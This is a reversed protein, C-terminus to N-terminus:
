NKVIKKVEALQNESYFRFFYIGSKLDSIDLRSNDEMNNVAGLERGSIDSYTCRMQVPVQDQFTFNLLGETPNPYVSLAISATHKNIGVPVDTMWTEKLRMSGEGVGCSYYFKDGAACGMGGKRGVAPIDPGQLWANTADNFYWLDKYFSGLTDTGGFLCLRNNATTLPAYTRGKGTFDSIKVWSDTALTYKYLEKRFAGGTDRGFVLFGSGNLVTAGSRFRGPFPYNNKQIWSDTSITYEWVEASSKGSQFKGGCIIVKDGFNMCAAGLLGSGPKSAVSIWTGALVDFKYMDTLAGGVGDGGFVYFCDPGSFACAYQREKTNPLNPINSWSYNSLDLAYFDVTAAWEILGTGFYAKNNVIVCVGDDRKTGPFDQLQNWVQASLLQCSLLFTFILKMLKKLLTFTDVKNKTNCKFM